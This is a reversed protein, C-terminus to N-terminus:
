MAPRVELMVSPGRIPALFVSTQSYLGKGLTVCGALPPPPHSNPSSGMNQGVRMAM